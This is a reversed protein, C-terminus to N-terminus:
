KVAIGLATLDDRSVAPSKGAKLKDAILRAVAAADSENIFSSNGQVAPIQEQRIIQKGDKLISYGWSDKSIPFTKYTYEIKAPEKNEHDAASFFLPSILFFIFLGLCLLPILIKKM